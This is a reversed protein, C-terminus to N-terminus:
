GDGKRRSAGRKAQRGAVQGSLVGVNGVETETTDGVTQEVRIDIAHEDRLRGLIAIMDERDRQSMASFLSLLDSLGLRIHVVGTELRELAGAMRNHGTSLETLATRLEELLTQNRAEASARAQEVQVRIDITERLQAILKNADQTM